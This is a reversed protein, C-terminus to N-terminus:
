GPIIILCIKVSEVRLRYFTKNLNSMLSVLIDEGYQAKYTDAFDDTWPMLIDETDTSTSLVKKRTFQPEDTFIAPVVGGFHDGIVQKYREHTVEVFRKVAKPNLTDLYTQNNYWPSPTHIKIYAYWKTGKAEDNENIQKYDSLCGNEDLIIDYCAILWGKGNRSGEARSDIYDIEKEETDCPETTMLLCRARYEEDKTVLGGAAGSPWRDEDYLWALMHEKDAKECCCKILSMFEDSLYNTSMGTRVHMHFGGLGMKKFIEIQRCLEEAKLDSNWAWFPTGRYESTPNRFLEDTLTPATNKKYLM